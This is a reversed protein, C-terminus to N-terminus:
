EDRGAIWFGVAFGLLGAGVVLATPFADQPKARFRDLESHTALYAEPTLYAGGEVEVTEGDWTTLTAKKVEMVADHM